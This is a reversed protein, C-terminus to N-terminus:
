KWGWIVDGFARVLDATASIPDNGHMFYFMLGVGLSAILFNRALHKSKATDSMTKIVKEFWDM